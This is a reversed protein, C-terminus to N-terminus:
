RKKSRLSKSWPIEIVGPPVWQRNYARYRDESEMVGRVIEKAFSAIGEPEYDIPIQKLWERIAPALADALGYGSPTINVTTGLWGEFPKAEPKMKTLKKATKKAGM